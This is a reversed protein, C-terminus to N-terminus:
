NQTTFLYWRALVYDALFYEKVCNCWRHHNRYEEIGEVRFRGDLVSATHLLLENLYVDTKTM